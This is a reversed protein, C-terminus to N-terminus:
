DLSANAVDLDAELVAFVDVKAVRVRLGGEVLAREAQSAAGGPAHLRLSQVPKPLNLTVQVNKVPSDAYNLLYLITRRGDFSRALNFCLTAPKSQIAVLPKGELRAWDALLDQTDPSVPYFVCVGSGVQKESKQQGAAVEGFLPSLGAAARRNLSDADYLSTEGTAILKGGKEVYDLVADVQADTMFQVNPLVAVPFQSLQERTLHKPQLLVFNKGAQLLDTGRHPRWESWTTVWATKAIPEVDAFLNEHESLWRNAATLAALAHRAEQRGQSLQTIWGLEFYSEHGGQSAAAEFVSRMQNRPPMPNESRSGHIRRGNEIRVPKWGDGEAFMYKFLGINTVLRGDRLGPEIGDETSIANLHDNMYPKQHTNAYVFIGPRLSEAYGRHHALANAVSQYGFQQWAYEARKRFEPDHVPEDGRTNGATDRPDKGPVPLATAFRAKSYEAFNRQCIKCKCFQFCNDYFIGDVGADIASSIREKSYALWEPHNLCALIRTHKGEYTAACYPRPTGDLEVQIWGKSAPVHQVMDAFFMNTLSMYATVHIGAEHCKAIWQKLMARQRAESQHSFGVSWTVWIWNIKADRLMEITDDDYFNACAHVADPQRIPEWGSMFGKCVEVPGGDCRAYRIHGPKAWDPIGDRQPAPLLAYGRFEGEAGLAIPPILTAVFLCATTLSKNM